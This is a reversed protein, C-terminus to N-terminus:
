LWGVMELKDVPAGAREVAMALAIAGDIQVGPGAQVMRWGRGTAKAIVGGVHRDLVVHGPHTLRGEVIASHLGESACVMRTHSQPFEVLPVGHEQQLRLAEAQYRWPDYAVERIIWGERQLQLIAATVELVAQDGEFIRIVAVELEPTVGILASAARSGGIDVGLVIERPTEDVPGRASAWAGAPLWLAESIGCQNLHFQRYTIESVRGRAERMVAVTFRSAPNV